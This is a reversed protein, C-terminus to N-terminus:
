DFMDENRLYPSTSISDSSGTEEPQSDDQLARILQLRAEFEEQSTASALEAMIKSKEALFQTDRSIRKKSEQTLFAPSNNQAWEKIRSKSILNMDFKNWWKIKICRSLIKLPINDYPQRFIYDWTVIWTVNQSAVFTIMKYNPLFTTVEKFYDFNESVEQPFLERIPGWTYFWQLFWKPFKLSIGRRFWFFWSHTKPKLYLMYTWAMTYDYYTYTQPQFQRSFSKPQYIPQGWEEPTM